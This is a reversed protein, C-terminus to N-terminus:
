VTSIFSLFFFIAMCGNHEMRNQVQKQRNQSLMNFCQMSFIATQNFVSAVSKVLVSNEAYKRASNRQKWKRTKKRGKTFCITYYNKKEGVIGM